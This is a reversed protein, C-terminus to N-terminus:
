SEDYCKISIKFDYFLSILVLVALRWICFNWLIVISFSLLIQSHACVPWRPRSRSASLRLISRSLLLCFFPKPCGVHASHFHDVAVSNSQVAVFVYVLQLFSMLNCTVAACGSKQKCIYCFILPRLCALLLPNQWRFWDFRRMFRNFSFCEGLVMTLWLLRCVVPPCAQERTFNVAALRQFLRRKFFRINENADLMKWKRLNWRQRTVVRKRLAAWPCARSASITRNPRNARHCWNCLEHDIRSSHVSLTSTRRLLTCSTVCQCCGCTLWPVKTPPILSIVIHIIYLNHSM